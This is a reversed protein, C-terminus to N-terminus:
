GCQGPSPAPHASPFPLSSSLHSFPMFSMVLFSGLPNPVPQIQSPLAAPPNVSLNQVTHGSFSSLKSLLLSPWLPFLQALLSSPCPCRLKLQAQSPGGSALLLPWPSRLALLATVWPCPHPPFPLHQLLCLLLQFSPLLM